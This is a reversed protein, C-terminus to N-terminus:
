LLEIDNNNCQNVVAINLAIKSLDSEDIDM